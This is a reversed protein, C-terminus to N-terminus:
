WGIESFLQPYSTVWVVVGEDCDPPREFSITPETEVKPDDAVHHGISEDRDEYAVVRIGRTDIVVFKDFFPPIATPEQSVPVGLIGDHTRDEAWGGSCIVIKRTEVEIENVIQCVSSHLQARRVRKFLAIIFARGIVVM